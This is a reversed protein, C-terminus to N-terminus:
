ELELEHFHPRLLPAPRRGFMGPFTAIEEDSIWQQEDATPPAPAMLDHPREGLEASTPVPASPAPGPEDGMEAGPVEVGSTEVGPMEAGSMEVGQEPGAQPSAAPPPIPPPPPAQAGAGLVAELEGRAQDEVTARDTAGSGFLRSLRGKLGPEPATAVSGQKSDPTM